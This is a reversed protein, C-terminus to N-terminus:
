SENFGALKLVAGKVLKKQRVKFVAHQITKMTFRKLRADRGKNAAALIQHRAVHSAMLEVEM